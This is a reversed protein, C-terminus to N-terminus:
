TFGGPCDRSTEVSQRNRASGEQSELLFEQSPHRTGMVASFATAPSPPESESCQSDLLMSLRCTSPSAEMQPQPAASTPLLPIHTTNQLELSLVHASIKTPPCCTYGQTAPLGSVTWLSFRYSRTYSGSDGTDWGQTEPGQSATDAEGGAFGM